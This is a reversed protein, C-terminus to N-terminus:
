ANLDLASEAPLGALCKLHSEILYPLDDDLDLYQDLLAAIMADYM